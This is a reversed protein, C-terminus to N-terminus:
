PRFIFFYYAYNPVNPYAKLCGVATQCNYGGLVGSVLPIVGLYRVTVGSAAPETGDEAM